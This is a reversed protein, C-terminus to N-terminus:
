PEGCCIIYICIHVFIKFSRSNTIIFNYTYLLEFKMEIDTAEIKYRTKKRRYPLCIFLTTVNNQMKTSSICLYMVLGMYIAFMNCDQFDKLLNHFCYYKM